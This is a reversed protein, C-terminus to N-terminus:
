SPLPPNTSRPAGPPPLARAKDRLLRALRRAGDVSLHNDDFYMAHGDIIAFCQTTGCVADSAPIRLTRENPPLADLRALAFANRRAYYARDTGRTPLVQDGGLDTKYIYRDISRPLEPIPDIIYVTKGAAQLREVVRTFSAWYASRAAAPPLERLFRPADDPLAPYSKLPDGFLYYTHRFALVVNRIRPTHELYDLSQRMWESCGPVNSEFLLAAQCGSFSLHLLGVHQRNLEEALAYALEVAHSDGFVAWQVDDAFYSCSKQPPMFNVGETHCAARKPSPLSTAALQAAREDFRAPFGARLYGATGILVFALSFAASLAFIRTRSWHRPRRFPREVFHWSLASLLLALAILALYVGHAPPQASVVRAFAFLPQHWLYLSYSVLGIAVFPPTALLRGLWTDRTAFGIVLVSGAVPLLASWGPFLTDKDLLAVSAAILAGGLLALAQRLTRHVQLSRQLRSPDIAILAGALLEWGRMPALFFNSLADSSASRVCLAFSVLACLVLTAAMTRRRRWLLLLLIPFVVYFQEEVSLSWTHLLPLEEANAGFYGSRFLFYLNSLFLTVAVSSESFEKLQGPTLWRWAAPLCCLMVLFLAPFIRRARREYFQRFSFHGARMERLIISTILYGSIVFFIDVGVYGGSFAAFGAHYFVVALVAVCRLGDIEPRYADVPITLQATATPDLRSV